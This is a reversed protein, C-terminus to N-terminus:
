FLRGFLLPSKFEVDNARSHFGKTALTTKRTVLTTKKRQSLRKRKNCGFAKQTSLTFSIIIHGNEQEEEQQQWLTLEKENEFSLSLFLFLPGNNEMAGLITKYFGNPDLRELVISGWAVSM